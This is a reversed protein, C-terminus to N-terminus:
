IRERTQEIILPQLRLRLLPNIPRERMLALVAVDARHLQLLLGARPGRGAARLNDM